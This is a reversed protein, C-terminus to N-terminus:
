KLLVRDRDDVLVDTLNFVVEIIQRLGGRGNSAIYFGDPALGLLKLGLGCFQIAVDIEEQALPAIVQGARGLAFIVRSLPQHFGIRLL